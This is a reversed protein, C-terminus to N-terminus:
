IPPLPPRRANTQRPMTEIDAHGEKATAHTKKTITSQQPFALPRSAWPMQADWLPPDGERRDPMDEHDPPADDRHGHTAQRLKSAQMAVRM